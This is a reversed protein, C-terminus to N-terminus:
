VTGLPFTACLDDLPERSQNQREMRERLQEASRVTWSVSVVSSNPPEEPKKQDQDPPDTAPGGGTRRGAAARATSVRKASPEDENEEEEEEEEEEDENEDQATDSENTSWDSSIRATVARLRALTVSRSKRASRRRRSQDSSSPATSDAVAVSDTESSDLMSLKSAVQAAHELMEGTLGTGAAQLRALFQARSTLEDNLVEQLTSADSIPAESRDIRDLGGQRITLLELDRKKQAMRLLRAELSEGCVLFFVLV